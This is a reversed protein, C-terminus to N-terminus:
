RGVFLARLEVVQVCIARTLLALGTKLPPRDLDIRVVIWLVAYEVCSFVRSPRDGVPRGIPASSRIRDGSDPSKM